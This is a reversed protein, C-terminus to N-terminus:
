NDKLDNIIQKIAKRMEFRADNVKQKIIKDFEKMVAREDPNEINSYITDLLESYTLDDLITDTSQYAENLGEGFYIKIGIGQLELIREKTLTNGVKVFFSNTATVINEKNLHVYKFGSWANHSFTSSISSSENFYYELVYKESITKSKEAAEKLFQKASFIQEESESTLVKRIDAISIDKSNRNQFLKKLANLKKQIDLEDQDQKKPKPEQHYIGFDDKKKVYLSGVRNSDPGAFDGGIISEKLGGSNFGQGFSFNYDSKQHYGADAKIRLLMENKLEAQARIDLTDLQLKEFLYDLKKDADTKDDKYSQITENIMENIENRNELNLLSIMKETKTM